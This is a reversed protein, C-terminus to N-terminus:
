MQRYDLKFICSPYFDSEHPDAESSKMSSKEKENAICGISDGNITAIKERKRHLSRVFGFFHACDLSM